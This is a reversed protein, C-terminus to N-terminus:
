LLVGQVTEPVHFGWIAPANNSEIRTRLVTARGEKTSPAYTGTWANDMGISMAINTSDASALPLHRFVEPNLMRLGHLRARPRGRDDCAMRMVQAMRGWWQSSGVKAFDGSSGLCVRPYLAMLRALRDLSEHMHWVPAAFWPPLPCEALLQDNQAEDGDIVDPVVAFDCSPIHLCEEAWAYYDAWDQVPQGKRWAGFAGNDIALSQCVSVALPLVRAHSFSVFAHGARVAALAATEPTVPLGHYCIM